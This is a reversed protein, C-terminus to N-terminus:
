SRGNKMADLRRLLRRSSAIVWKSQQIAEEREIVLAQHYDPLEGTTPRINPKMYDVVITTSQWLEYGSCQDACADYLVQAISCAAQNDSAEFNDIGVIGGADRFYLRFNPM